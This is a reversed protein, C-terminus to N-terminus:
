YFPLFFFRMDHLNENSNISLEVENFIAPKIIDFVTNTDLSNLLSQVKMLYISTEKDLYDMGWINQLRITFFKFECEKAQFEIKIPIPIGEYHVYKGNIKSHFTGKFWLYDDGTSGGSQYYWGIQKTIDTM